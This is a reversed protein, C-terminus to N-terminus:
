RWISWRAVAFSLTRFPQKATLYFMAHFLQVAAHEVEVVVAGNNVKVDEHNVVAKRDARTKSTMLALAYLTVIIAACCEVYLVFVPQSFLPTMARGSRGHAARSSGSRCRRRGAFAGGLVAMHTDDSYHETMGAFDCWLDLGLLEVPSSDGPASLKIAAGREGGILAIGRAALQAGGRDVHEFIRSPRMPELTASRSGDSIVAKPKGGTSPSQAVASARGLVIARARARERAARM